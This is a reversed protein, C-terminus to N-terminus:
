KVTIGYKKFTKGDKRDFVVPKLACFNQSGDETIYKWYMKVKMLKAKGDAGAKAYEEKYRGSVMDTIYNYRGVSDVVEATAVDHGLSLYFRGEIHKTSVYYKVGEGTVIFAALYPKFELLPLQEFDEKSEEQSELFEEKNKEMSDVSEEKSANAEEVSRNFLRNKYGEYGLGADVLAASLKKGIGEVKIGEDLTNLIMGYDALFSDGKSIIKNIAGLHGSDMNERVFEDFTLISM